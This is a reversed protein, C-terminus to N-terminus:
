HTRVMIRKWLSLTELKVPPETRVGRMSGCVISTQFIWLHTSTPMALIKQWEAGHSCATRVNHFSATCLPFPQWRIQLSTIMRCGYMWTANKDSNSKSSHRTEPMWPACTFLESINSVVDVNCIAQELRYRLTGSWGKGPAWSVGELTGSYGRLSSM